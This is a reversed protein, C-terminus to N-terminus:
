LKAEDLQRVHCRKGNRLFLAEEAFFPQAHRELRLCVPFHQQIAHNTALKIARVHQRTLGNGCRSANTGLRLQNSRDAEIEVAIGDRHRVLYPALNCGAQWLSRIALDLVRNRCCRELALVQFEAHDKGEARV